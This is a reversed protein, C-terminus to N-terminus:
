LFCVSTQEGIPYLKWRNVRIVISTTVPITNRWNRLIGIPIKRKIESTLIMIRMTIYMNRADWFIQLSKKKGDFSVLEVPNLIALEATENTSRIPGKYMRSQSATTCGASLFLTAICMSTLWFANRYRRGNM